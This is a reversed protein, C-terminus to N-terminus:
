MITFKKFNMILVYLFRRCATGYKVAKIQRFFGIDVFHCTPPNRHAHEQIEEGPM